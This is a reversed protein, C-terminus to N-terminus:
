QVSRHLILLEDVARPGQGGLSVLVAHQCM